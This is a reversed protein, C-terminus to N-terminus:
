GVPAMPARQLSRSAPRLPAVAWAALPSRTQSTWLPVLGGDYVPLCGGDCNRSILACLLFALLKASVTRSM